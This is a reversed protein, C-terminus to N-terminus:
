KRINKDKLQEKTIKRGTIVLDESEMDELFKITKEGIVARPLSIKNAYLSEIDKAVFYGLLARLAILYYNQTVKKLPQGKKNRFRNLYLKYSQIDDTTFEHPLLTTKNNEKQLWLIFKNLYHKYNKQTKVALGVKAM